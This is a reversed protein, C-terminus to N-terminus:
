MWFKKTIVNPFVERRIEGPGVNFTIVKKNIIGLESNRINKYQL